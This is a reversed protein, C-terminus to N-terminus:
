KETPSLTKSAGRVFELLLDRHAYTRQSLRLRYQGYRNDDELSDV